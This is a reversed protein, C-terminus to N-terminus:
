LGQLYLLTHSDVSGNDLIIIEYNQYSSKQQISEICRQLVSGNDRSPIIISILPTGRLHYKVRFYGQMQEVPEVTGELGRRMLTDVRVRRSADLVYPKAAIDSAVSA